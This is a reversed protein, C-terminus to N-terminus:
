SPVGPVRRHVSQRSGDIQARRIARVEDDTWYIYGEVPDYDIAIAHRIDDLPLVIDTFDPTDLSIRRLDTRRALLLLETAGYMLVSYAAAMSTRCMSKDTPPHGDPLLINSDVERWDEGTYKNCALISRTNWDTWYITDGFLTLAFPHPPALRESRNQQFSGDLNSKHIFSLQRRGWYLKQEEYDQTLGNPWYIDSDIICPACPLRGMGARSLRQCRAGTRGICTGEPPIWPSREPSIWNKGSYLKGYLEM